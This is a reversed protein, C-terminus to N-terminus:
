YRDIIRIRNWYQKLCAQWTLGPACLFQAPVLKYIEICKHIFNEFVDALLLTNSQVYLDHYEDVNKITFEEFEKQAHKCDEDANEELNLESYFAKKDLM